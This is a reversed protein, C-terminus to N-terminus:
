GTKGIPGGPVGAGGGGGGGGGVELFRKRGRFYQLYCDSIYCKNM